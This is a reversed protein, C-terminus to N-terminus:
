RKFLQLMVTKNASYFLYMAGLALILDLVIQMQITTNLGLCGCEINIGRILLSTLSLIFAILLSLSLFVSGKFFVRLLLCAGLIIELPPLTVATLAVLPDGLIKYNRIVLEFAQPDRIKYFGSYIFTSGLVLRILLEVPDM